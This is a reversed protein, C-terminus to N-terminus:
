HCDPAKQLSWTWVTRKMVSQIGAFTFNVRQAKRRLCGKGPERSEKREPCWGPDEAKREGCWPSRARELWRDRPEKSAEADCVTSFSM